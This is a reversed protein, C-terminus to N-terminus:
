AARMPFPGAKSLMGPVPHELREALWSTNEILKDLSLESCMGMRQLMYVVDETPVNGTAGPAFPCGGVGGISADFATVGTQIAAYINALGTNRTNHFHCRLAIGPVAEMVASLVEAVRTPAGVGISDAIIIESPQEKALETALEVVRSVPVEGEYPCGFSASISVTWKKGAERAMAAVRPWGALTEATPCGQNAINYGDTSIVVYNIEDVGAAIAREAGRVNLALGTYEIGAERPVRKMVEDADAMQPVRRPNVFSTAEIKRIGAALAREILEVKEATTLIKDENQIGDRPSVEVITILRDM